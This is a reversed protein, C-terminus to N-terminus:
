SGEPYLDPFSFGPLSPVFPYQPVSEGEGPGVEPSNVFPNGEDPWRDLTVPVEIERLKRRVNLTITDGPSHRDVEAFFEALGYAPFTTWPWPQSENLCDQDLVPNFPVGFGNFSSEKRSASQCPRSGFIFCGRTGRIRGAM